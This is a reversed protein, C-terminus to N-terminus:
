KNNLSDDYGMKNKVTTVFFFCVISAGAGLVIAGVPGVSGAAPTVAVLRVYKRLFCDFHSKCNEKIAESTYSGIKKILANRLDRIIRPDIAKDLAKDDLEKDAGKIGLVKACARIVEVFTPYPFNIV